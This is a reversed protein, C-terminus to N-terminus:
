PKPPHQYRKYPVNRLFANLETARPLAKNLDINLHTHPYDQWHKVLKARVAQDRTYRFALTAQKEDRICGDFYTKKGKHGWFPLLRAPHAQTNLPHARASQLGGAEILDNIQKSLRGHLTQMMKPLNQGTKLYGLTHYHNNMLTTVWPTFSGLQSAHDFADWFLQCAQPCNFLPTGQATKATIFYVQNDRYWHEFRHQNKYTRHQSQNSKHTFSM